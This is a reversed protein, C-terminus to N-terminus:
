SIKNYHEYVRLSTIGTLWSENKPGPLNRLLSKVRLRHKEQYLVWLLGVLVLFIANRICMLGTADSVSVDFHANMFGIPTNLQNVTESLTM